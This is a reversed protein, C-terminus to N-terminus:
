MTTAKREKIHWELIAENGPSIKRWYPFDRLKNESSQLKALRSIFKM